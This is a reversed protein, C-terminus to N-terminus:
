QLGITCRENDDRQAKTSAGEHGQGRRQESSVVSVNARMSYRGDLAARAIPYNGYVDSRVSLSLAPHASLVRAIVYLLLPM